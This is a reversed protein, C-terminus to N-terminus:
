YSSLCCLAGRITEKLAQKVEHIKWCYLFPNLTSNFYFLTVTIDWALYESSSLRGNSFLAVVRGYPLRYVVLACQVQM